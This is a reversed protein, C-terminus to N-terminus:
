PTSLWALSMIQLGRNDVGLSSPFPADSNDAADEFNERLSCSLIAWKKGLASWMRFSSRGDRLISGRRGKHLGAAWFRVGSQLDHLGISLLPAAQIISDLSNISSGVSESGHSGLQRTMAHPTNSTYNSIDHLDGM